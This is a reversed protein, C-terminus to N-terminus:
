KVSLSVVPPLPLAHVFSVVCYKIRTSVSADAAGVYLWWRRVPVDGDQPEVHIVPSGVVGSLSLNPNVLM